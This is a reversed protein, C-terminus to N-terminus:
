ARNGLRFRVIDRPAQTDPKCRDITHNAKTDWNIVATVALTVAFQIILLYFDLLFFLLPFVSLAPFLSKIKM